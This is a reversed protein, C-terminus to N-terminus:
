RVGGPLETATTMAAFKDSHFIRAGGISGCGLMLQAFKPVDDATSFLGAHGAVGGMRYATPDYLAGACWAM